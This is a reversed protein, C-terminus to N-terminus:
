SELIQHLFYYGDSPSITAKIRVGQQLRALQASAITGKISIIRQNKIVTDTIYIDARCEYVATGMEGQTEKMSTRLGLESERPGNYNEM